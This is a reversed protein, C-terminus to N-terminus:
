RVRAGMAVELRKTPLRLTVVCGGDATFESKLIEAGRVTEKLRTKLSSEKELARDVTIGGELEVGKIMSLLEYQAKVIAADRALAMRQTKTPLAPDSAGIGIAEIFGRRTPDQDITTQVEGKVVRSEIGACGTMLTLTALMALRKIM